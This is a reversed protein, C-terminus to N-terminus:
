LALLDGCTDESDGCLLAAGAVAGLGEVLEGLLMERLAMLAPPLVVLDLDCLREDVRDQHGDRVEKLNDGGVLGLM